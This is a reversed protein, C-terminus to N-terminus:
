RATKPNNSDADGYVNDGLMVFLEPSRDSISKMIPMPENQNACSGFAIRTLTDDAGPMPALPGRLAPLALATPPESGLPVPKACGLLLWLSVIMGATYRLWFFLAM